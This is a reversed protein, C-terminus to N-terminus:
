RLNHLKEDDLVQNKLTANLASRVTLIHRKWVGGMHSAAPPNFLEIERILLVQRTHHSDNWQQISDQIEKNGQVFNTGNDSRIKKLNGRRAIFRILSNIFSDGEMSSLKELHIARM